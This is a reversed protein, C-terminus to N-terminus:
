DVEARTLDHNKDDVDAFLSPFEWCSDADRSTARAKITATCFYIACDKKPDDHKSVFEAIARPSRTMLKDFEGRRLKSNRNRIAPLALRARRHFQFYERIFDAVVVDATVHISKAEHSMIRDSMANGRLARPEVMERGTPVCRLGNARHASRRGAHGHVLDWRMRVAPVFRQPRRLHHLRGDGIAARRGGNPKTAPPRRRPQETPVPPRLGTEAVRLRM